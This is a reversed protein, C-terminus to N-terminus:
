RGLLKSLIINLSEKIYEFDEIKLSQHCPLAFGNKQINRCVDNKAFVINKYKKSVPQISFDGALFPRTEINKKM